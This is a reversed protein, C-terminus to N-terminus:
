LGGGVHVKRRESSPRLSSRVAAEFPMQRLAARHDATATSVATALRDLRGQLDSLTDVSEVLAGLAKKELRTLVAAMTALDTETPIQM